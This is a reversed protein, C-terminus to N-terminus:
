PSSATLREKLKSYARHRHTPIRLESLPRDYGDPVFVTSLLMDASPDAYESSLRLSGRLEGVAARCREGDRTAVTCRVTCGDDAVSSLGELGRLGTEKLLHKVLPGPFDGLGDLFLSFDDVLVPSGVKTYADEAKRRVVTEPDTSQLEPVDVAAQVLTVDPGFVDVATRYKADNSTVFHLPGAPPDNASGGARDAGVFPRDNTM